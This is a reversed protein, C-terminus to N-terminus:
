KGLGLNLTFQFINPGLRKSFRASQINGFQQQRWKFNQFKARHSKKEKQM